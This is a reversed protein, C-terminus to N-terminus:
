ALQQCTSTTHLCNWSLSLVSCSSLSTLWSASRSTLRTLMTSRVVLSAASRSSSPVQASAKSFLVVYVLSALSLSNTRTFGQLGEKLSFAYVTHIGSFVQEALGRASASADQAAATNKTTWRGVGLLVAGLIPFTALVVLSVKPTFFPSLFFGFFSASVIRVHNGYHESIGDQIAETDAVLQATLSEQEAQDFWAMDQRLIAHVYLQIIRRTQREDTYMWLFNHLYSLVQVASGQAIFIIVMLKTSETLSKGNSLADVVTFMSM